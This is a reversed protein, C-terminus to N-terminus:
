HIAFGIQKTPSKKVSSELKLMRALEEPNDLTGIIEAKKRVVAFDGPTLDSFDNATIPASVGFFESFALLTQNQTLARFGVKFTFRRLSAQDLRKMLNTTCAFPLPHSEMWTLMENVQSIEWSHRAHNRDGLLSDAEDFILFSEKDQAEKFAAAIKQETKGVLSSILDSARKVLVEMGLQDALHKVYETKGTGPPGYLCLSFQHQESQKLQTVLANLDMDANVLDSCYPSQQPKEDQKTPGNIANIVGRTAFLIDDTGQGNIQSFRVANDIIAASADLSMLETVATDPLKLKHKAIIKNWAGERSSKPPSKIELILSMKQLITKDLVSVDNIIWITPVPNNELFRNTFVKPSLPLDGTLFSHFESQVFLDDLEDFMLLSDNQYRLLSQTLRMINLQEIRNPNGWEDDTEGIGVAYLSCNIQQALTKCFETKGTGSAGWLLVNIGTQNQQLSNQLFSSLRSRSDSLHSFDNWDLESQLPLGLIHTRIDYPSDCSNLLADAIPEPIDFSDTLCIGKHNQLQILGSSVLGGSNKLRSSVIQKNLGTFLSIIQLPTGNNKGFRNSLNNVGKYIKYRAILNFIRQDDADLKLGQGFANLATELPSSQNDGCEYIIKALLSIMEIRIKKQRLKVGSHETAAEKYDDLMGWIKKSNGGVIIDELHDELWECIELFLQPTTQPARFLNILYGCMVKKEFDDILYFRRKNHQRLKFIQCIRNDFLKCVQQILSTQLNPTNVAQLKKISLTYFSYADYM